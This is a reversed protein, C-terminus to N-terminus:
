PIVAILGRKISLKLYHLYAHPHEGLHKIYESNREERWTPASFSFSHGQMLKEKFTAKCFSCKTRNLRGYTTNVLTALAVGQVRAKFELEEDTVTYLSWNLAM